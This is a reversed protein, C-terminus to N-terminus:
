ILKIKLTSMGTEQLLLLLENDALSTGFLLDTLFLLELYTKLPTHLYPLLTVYNGLPSPLVSPQTKEKKFDNWKSFTRQLIWGKSLSHWSRPHCYLFFNASCNTFFALFASANLTETIIVLWVLIAGSAKLAYQPCEHFGAFDSFPARLCTITSSRIVAAVVSYATPTVFQIGQQWIALFYSLLFYFFQFLCVFLLWLIDQSPPIPIGSWLIAQEPDPLTFPRREMWVTQSDEM